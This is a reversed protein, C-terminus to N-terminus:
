SLHSAKWRGEFNSHWIQSGKKEDDKKSRVGFAVIIEKWGMFIKEVDM